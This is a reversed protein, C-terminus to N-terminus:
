GLWIVFDVDSDLRKAASIASILLEIPTDCQFHGFKRLVKKLNNLTQNRCRSAPDGDARYQMDVHADSLM